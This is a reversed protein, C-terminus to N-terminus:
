WRVMSLDDFAVGHRARRSRRAEVLTRWTETVDDRGINGAQEGFPERGGRVPVSGDALVTMMKMSQEAIWKAPPRAEAIRPADGAGGGGLPDEVLGTGLTRRWREIFSAQDGLTHVCRVMRPVIWPLAFAGVGEGAVVRRGAILRRLNQMVVEWADVGHVRMRTDANDGDLDVSIVQPECALLRDVCGADVDLGTRLHVAQIGSERAIRVCADFDPHRLSDGRGHLTLVCEGSRGLEGVLRTFVDVDMWSQDDESADRHSSVLEVQVHKPHAEVGGDMLRNAAAEVLEVPDADVRDFGSGMFERAGAADIVCRHAASRIVPPTTVNHERAIPDHEPKESRYGLLHGLTAYRSRNTAFEALLSRGLVMGGLGPPAQNFTFGLRPQERFRRIVRDVGAEGEVPLMAWDAGVVLAAHHGGAELAAHTHIPSLVEDAACFGHIGGRWASESFARAARIAEQEPGFVAAGCRHIVVPLGIRDRDIDVDFEDPALVIIESLEHSAGLRELTQQLLGLPSGKWSLDRVRGTGGRQPDVAVVAAVRVADVEVTALGIERELEAVRNRPEVKVGDRVLRIAQELQAYLEDAAEASWEVNVLDRDLQARQRAREDDTETLEIRRDARLRRFVGLQNLLDVLKWTLSREAVIAQKKELKAFLEAMRPRDDQASIMKSIIARAERSAEAIEGSERRVSVLRNAVEAPTYASAASARPLVIPEGTSAHTDLVEDLTGPEAFRKRVGGETADITRLGRDHDANFRVEFQRLYTLMQEDTFITRGHVDVQESLQGRHRVIREWEMTEIPNFMGLEPRWVEHIANGPAYYLGDTFGLDQGIMAVPDCGLHRALVYALHAVTACGELVEGNRAMPGLFADLERSNIVRLRGPWADPVAPNVKPDIVLETREVDEASIGEYFRTSIAHYDLATVFHPQIGAALLPRLSTQTAIIVSRDRVVPRALAHLNRQLSPGASVVIGLRGRAADELDDIGNGLAYHDINSLLNGITDASRGLATMMTMRATSAIASLGRSFVAGQSGIRPASPPHEVLRIGLMLLSDVKALRTQLGTMDEADTVVMLNAQGIWESMDVRSFVAKLLATDPEFVLVIGTRKMRRALREVHLGLGFGLVAITANDRLDVDALLRDVEEGPRHRSALRRGMWTGTLEGDAANSLELDVDTAARFAESSM